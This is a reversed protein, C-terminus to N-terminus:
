IQLTEEEVRDGAKSQLQSEWFCEYYRRCVEPDDQNDRLFNFWTAVVEGSIHM